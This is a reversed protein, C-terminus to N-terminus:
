NHFQADKLIDIVKLPTINIFLECMTAAEYRKKRHSSLEECPANLFFISWLKPRLAYKLSPNALKTLLYSHALRTHGIATQQNVPQKLRMPVNLEDAGRAPLVYLTNLFM